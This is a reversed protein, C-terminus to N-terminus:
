IINVRSLSLTHIHDKFTLKRQSLEQLDHQSIMHDYAQRSFQFTAECIHCYKIKDPCKEIMKGYPQYKIEGSDEKGASHEEEFNDNEESIDKRQMALNQEKDFDEEENHVELNEYESEDKDVTDTEHSGEESHTIEVKIEKGDLGYDTQVVNATEETQERFGYIIALYDQVEEINFEPLIVLDVQTLTGQGSYNQLFPQLMLKHCKLKNKNDGCLITLDLSEGSELWERATDLLWDFRDLNELRM